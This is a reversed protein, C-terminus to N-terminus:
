GMFVLLSASHRKPAFFIKLIWINSVKPIQIVIEVEVDTQGERIRQRYRDTHFVSNLELIRLEAKGCKIIYLVYSPKEKGCPHWSDSPSGFHM